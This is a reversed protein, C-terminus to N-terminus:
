GQPAPSGQLDLRHCAHRARTRRCLVQDLSEPRQSKWGASAKRPDREFRLGRARDSTIKPLLAIEALFPDLSRCVPPTTSHACVFPDLVSGPRRLFCSSWGREATLARSRQGTGK